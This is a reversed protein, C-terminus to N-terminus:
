DYLLIFMHFTLTPVSMSDSELNKVGLLRNLITMNQCDEMGSSNFYCKLGGQSNKLPNIIHAPRWSGNNRQKKGLANTLLCSPARHAKQWLLLISQLLSIESSTMLAQKVVLDSFEPGELGSRLGALCWFTVVAPTLSLDTVPLFTADPFSCPAKLEEEPGKFLNRGM